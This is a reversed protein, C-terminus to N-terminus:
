EREFKQYEPPLDIGFKDCLAKVDHYDDEDLEYGSHFKVADEASISKVTLGSLEGEGTLSSSPYKQNNNPPGYIGDGQQDIEIVHVDIEHGEVNGLVFNWPKEDRDPVISYGQENLIERLKSVNKAEVAIDLDSHDRTHVGLLADVGWGGDLWVAIDANEMKLYFDLVQELPMIAVRSAPSPEKM